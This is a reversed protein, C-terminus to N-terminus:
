GGAIVALGEYIRRKVINFPSEQGRHLLNHPTSGNSEIEIQGGASKKVAVLNDVILTGEGRFDASHGTSQLIKRLDALRLDGVHVSQTASRTASALNTPLIDLIPPTDEKEENTQLGPTSSDRDTKIRKRKQTDQVDDGTVTTLRGTVTVIGLGRVEQWQIRKVLDRSLKVTWAHTDMSATITEGIRPTFIDDSSDRRFKQRCENALWKIESETGSTLIVKRPQILPILMSLSRQDHLGSFDIFDINFNAQITSTTRILKSPGNAPENEENDGEEDDDEEGSDVEGDENKSKRKGNLPQHLEGVVKVEGWKRKEGLAGNNNQSDRLDGEIEDREEARLYDEPRILEGYEDVRRRKNFYPYVAERGKKGRVDWDYFGPKRLLANIGSLDKDEVAKNRNQQLKSSFLSKGQREDDSEESSESSSSGEEIVDNSDELKAGDNQVQQLQKQTALYQQYTALEKGELSSKSLDTITIEGESDNNGQHYRNWLEYGLSSKAPRQSSFDETLIILNNNTSDNSILKLAEKSLGWDISSDSAIIVKPGQPLKKIRSKREILKLYKFTFPGSNQDPEEKIQKSDTRKHRPKETEASEFAKTVNEDMWEIMSKTFEITSGMTRSALYAKAGKFVDESQGKRWANELFWALELVRASSDSPILITGNKNLTSRIKDLLLEDRKIRSASQVNREVGRSSCVLATPKRLQEIVESGGGGLGGGLWAAGSTVNERALNWDVAYVVSEMGHQIHWITGGLTHGANYATITLGNLPPSFPSHIPQHPQSYRLPNILAFYSAIEELTPPQLLIESSTDGISTSPILTSALPTSAYIDQLLTRGL